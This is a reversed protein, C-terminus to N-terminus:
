PVREELAEIDDQVSRCYRRIARALRRRDVLATDRNISYLLISRNPIAFERVQMGDVMAFKTGPVTLSSRAAFRSTM